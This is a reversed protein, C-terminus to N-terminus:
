QGGSLTNVLTALAKIDRKALIEAVKKPEAGTKKLATEVTTWLKAAKKEDACLYLESVSEALKHLSITDLHEYYRNVIKKQHQSLHQGKAM